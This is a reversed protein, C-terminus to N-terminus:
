ELLRRGSFLLCMAYGGTHVQASPAELAFVLFQRDEEERLHPSFGSLAQIRSDSITTGRDQLQFWSLTLVNDFLMSLACGQVCGRKGEATIPKGLHSLVKFRRNIRSYLDKMVDIIPLPCGARQLLIWGFGGAGFPMTDFAKALDYSTGQAMSHEQACEDLILEIPIILDPVANRPRCARM